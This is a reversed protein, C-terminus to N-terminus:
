NGQSPENLYDNNIDKEKKIDTKGFKYSFSIGFSRFPLQRVSYSDYDGTNVTTVQKIYKNFPNTMTFGISAKKNWFVKRGALTYTISQPNKGQINKAASNYNGFAELVFNNPFQYNVNLNLRYRMGMDLDGVYIHSVIYRHFVMLNGRLNLKNNLFPLSASVIAGSNYEKGINDRSSVSVNTYDVGNATFVPYFTTIQKLDQSNIREVLTMSINGGNGLNKSYGFEMNDGIEPKLSPNGTTINHPDSINLFPNLESYEPREVRRTYALKLTGNNDFKHSLILSPVFLGYSPINTGPFDIKLTTYEYRAGARLDLWNFFKFTSSFYAAYIGMDYKLNYSQLPDKEYQNFANLVSVDTTNTIHQLVTKGGMEFTINDTLPHVYDVSLNHSNDTGPNNASTGNYPFAAGYLSQNQIYSSEPTGYSVVYDATLEQGDKQFTKRYSLSGDISNVTSRNDSNRYGLISQENGSADTIYQEQNIFGISKNRFSNYSISGSFTNSKNISWDFGMGTRYGHRQFDTYGDQLLRTQSNTQSDRSIRDQSFPTRSKLQTNGSFFANMSFNNNRYNLNLSGTEFRTGLSGNIIGNIGKVKSDNLVINIIGGTGQADYKAGPSTVAEISKIQSAPISALADALSNGFISSPKGNILFRVNPNGQLEVNGDADVTVQPVKRLVDIAAGNQSTLDNAVNYVIKDIKNEVVAKKGVITVAEITKIRNVKISDNAKGKATEPTTTQANALAVAITALLVSIRKM